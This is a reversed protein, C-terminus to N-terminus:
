DESVSPLVGGYRTSESIQSACLMCETRLFFWGRTDLYPANEQVSWHIGTERGLLVLVTVFARRFETRCADCSPVAVAENRRAMGRNKDLIGPQRWRQWATGDDKARLRERIRGIKGIGIIFGVLLPASM